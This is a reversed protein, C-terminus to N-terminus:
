VKDEFSDGMKEVIPCSLFSYGQKKVNQFLLFVIIM